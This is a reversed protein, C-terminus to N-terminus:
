SIREPMMQPLSETEGGRLGVPFRRFACLPGKLLGRLAARGGFNFTVM